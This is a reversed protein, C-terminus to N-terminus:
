GVVPVIRWGRAVSRGCRAPEDGAAVYLGTLMPVAYALAGEPLPGAAVLSAIGHGIVWSQTALELPDVDDRFQGSDKARGVNRVLSHLTDDAAQPDELEFDADFMVRYLDPADLANAVYAAGQAALDRVPDASPAVAALRAALLTFGKACRAGCDTWAASTPTSRWRRCAPTPWSSRLSVPERARLMQAARRLLLARVAPDKSRAMAGCYM